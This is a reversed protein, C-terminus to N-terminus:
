LEKNVTLDILWCADVLFVIGLIVLSFLSGVVAARVMLAGFGLLIAVSLVVKSTKSLKPSVDTFQVGKNYHSCQECEIDRERIMFATDLYDCEINAYPCKM